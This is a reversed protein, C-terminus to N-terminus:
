IQGGNEIFSKYITATKLQKDFVMDEIEKYEIAGAHCVKVCEPNGGCHDCKIVRKGDATMKISGWPCALVCQKCGICLDYNLEVVGTQSNRKLAKTPCIKQCYAENCQTCVQPIFTFSDLFESIHINSNLPNFENSHVFSCAYECARCGTCKDIDVVLVKM